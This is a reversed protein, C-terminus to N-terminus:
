EVGYWAVGEALWGAAVLADNEGESTTYNHTGTAAFPNYQRHVAVGEEASYWGIGEDNWGAEVLSSKEVLSKTYHHDGTYPNYLRYVPAASESPALWGTGENDWGAATLSDREFDSTTFFHEGTYPNYLRHVELASALRQYTEEASVLVDYNSVETQVGADLADYAERAAEILVRSVQSREVEGIADIADIVEQAAPSVYPILTITMGCSYPGDAVTTYKVEYKKSATWSATLIVSGPGSAASQTALPEAAGEEEITLFSEAYTGDEGALMSYPNLEVSLTDGKKLIFPENTSGATYGIVDLYGDPWGKQDRRSPIGIGGATSGGWMGYTGYSKINGMYYFTLNYTQPEDNSSQAAPSSALAADAAESAVIVQDAVSDSDAVVAQDAVSDSQEAADDQSVAEIEEAAGNDYVAEGRVAAGGDEAAMAAQPVCVVPGAAVAAMLALGASVAGIGGTLRRM